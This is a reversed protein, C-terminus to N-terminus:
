PKFSILNKAVLNLLNFYGGLGSVKFSKCLYFEQNSLFEQLFARLTYQAETRNKSEDIKPRHGLM